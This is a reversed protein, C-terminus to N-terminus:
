VTEGRYGKEVNPMKKGTAIQYIAAM